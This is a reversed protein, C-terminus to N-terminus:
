GTLVRVKFSLILIEQTVMVGRPLPSLSLIHPSSPHAVSKAVSLMGGLWLLSKTGIKVTSTVVNMANTVRYVMASSTIYIHPSSPLNVGWGHAANEPPWRRPRLRKDNVGRIKDNVEGVEM